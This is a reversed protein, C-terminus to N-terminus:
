QWRTAGQQAHNAWSDRNPPSLLSRGGDVPITCGTIFGGAPSALFVVTGAIEHPEGIRQLPISASAAKLGAEGLKSNTSFSRILGPAVCVVRINDPAFEDALCRAMHSLGAKSVAYALNQPSAQLGAGSGILIMTGGGRAAIDGRLAHCLRFNHHINTNLTSEFIEPPTTASPGIFSLRSANCVLIDVGGFAERAREALREVDELKDLDCAVGKAIVQGDGYQKDLDAAV